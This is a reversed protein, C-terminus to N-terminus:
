SRHTRRARVSVAIEWRARLRPESATRLSFAMSGMFGIWRLTATRSAASCRRFRSVTPAAIAEIVATPARLPTLASVIGPVEDEVVPWVDVAEALEECDVVDSSEEDDFLDEVDPLPSWLEDPTM